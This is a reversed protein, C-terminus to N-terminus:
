SFLKPPIREQVHRGLGLDLPSGLVRSERLSGTKVNPAGDFPSSQFVLGFERSTSANFERGGFAFSAIYKQFERVSSVDNDLTSTRGAQRCQKFDIVGGVTHEERINGIVKAM